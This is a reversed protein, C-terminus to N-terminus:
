VSSDFDWFNRPNKPEIVTDKRCIFYRKYRIEIRLELPENGNERRVVTIGVVGNLRKRVNM